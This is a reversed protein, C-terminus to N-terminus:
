TLGTQSYYVILINDLKQILLFSLLILTFYQNPNCRKLWCNALVEQYFLAQSIKLRKTIWFTYLVGKKLFCFNLSLFSVHRIVRLDSRDLVKQIIDFSGFVSIAILASFKSWSPLRFQKLFISECWYVLKSLSAEGSSILFKFYM